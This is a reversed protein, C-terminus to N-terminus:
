PTEILRLIYVIKCKDLVLLPKEAVFTFYIYFLHIGGRVGPIEILFHQPSTCGLEVVGVGRTGGRPM